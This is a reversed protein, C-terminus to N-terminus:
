DHHSGKILQSLSINNKKRFVETWIKPKLHDPHKSERYVRKCDSCTVFRWYYTWNKIRNYLQDEPIPYTTNCLAMMAKNIKIRKHIVDKKGLCVTM